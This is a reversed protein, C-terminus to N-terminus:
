KEEFIINQKKIEDILEINLKKASWGKYKINGNDILVKLCKTNEYIPTGDNKFSERLKHYPLSYKKCADVFCGHFVYKLIGLENYIGIILARANNKGTNKISNLKRAEESQVGGNNLWHNKSIKERTEDSRKIGKLAKSISKSFNEKIIKTSKDSLTYDRQQKTNKMDMMMRLAFWMKDGFSKSLFMHAILHQRATLVSCNWENDKFDSFEPWLSRPLIHHRETYIDEPLDKNKDICAFIFNVYRNLYHINRSHNPCKEIMLQYITKSDM